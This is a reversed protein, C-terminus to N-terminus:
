QCNNKLNKKKKKECPFVKKNSQSLFTTSLLMVKVGIELHPSLASSLLLQGGWDQLGLPRQETVASVRLVAASPARGAAGRRGGASQVYALTCPAAESLPIGLVRSSYQLPLAARLWTRSPSPLSLSRYM